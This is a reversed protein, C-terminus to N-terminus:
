RVMTAPVTIWGFAAYLQFPLLVCYMIAVEWIHANYSWPIPTTLIRELSSLSDSFTMIAALLANTTPVDITKRSQLAAVYNSMFLTIELPVNSGVGGSSRYEKMRQRMAKRGKVKLRQRPSVLYRIPFTESWRFVPPDEAPRLQPRSLDGTTALKESSITVKRQSGRRITSSESETEEAPSSQEHPSPEHRKSEHFRSLGPAISIDEPAAIGSPFHLSPIFKVLDYM